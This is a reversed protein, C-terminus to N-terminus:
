LPDQRRSWVALGAMLVIAGIPAYMLPVPHNQQQTQQAQSQKELAIERNQKAYDDIPNIALAKDYSIVAEEYRGLQSLADGRKNWLYVDAGNPDIDIAKDYSALAETTRGLQHLAYGRQAWLAADNPEFVLAKDFSAVAETNKGLKSFSVGDNFYQMARGDYATATPCILLVLLIFVCFITIRNMMHMLQLIRNVHNSKRDMGSHLFPDIGGGGATDSFTNM